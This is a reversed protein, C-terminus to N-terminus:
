GLDEPLGFMGDPNPEFDLVDQVAELDVPGYIHPFVEASLDAGPEWKLPSTLKAPDIALIVLGNKGKYYDKAVRLLQVEQSCHIFGQSALTDAAYKGEKQAADWEARSTIHYVRENM